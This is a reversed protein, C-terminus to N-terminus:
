LLIDVKGRETKFTINGTGFFSLPEDAMEM